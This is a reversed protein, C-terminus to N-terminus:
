GVSLYLWKRDFKMSIPGDAASHHRRISKESFHLPGLTVSGLM